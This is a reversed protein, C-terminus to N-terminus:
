DDGEPDARCERKAHEVRRHEVPEPEAQRLRDDVVHLQRARDVRPRFPQAASNGDTTARPTPAASENRTSLGATNSPSPSPRDSANTSSTFSALVNSSRDSPSRPATGM